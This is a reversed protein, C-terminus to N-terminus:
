LCGGHLAGGHWQKSALTSINRDYIHTIISPLSSHSSLLSLLLVYAHATRAPPPVQWRAMAKGGAAIGLAVFAFNHARKTKNLM